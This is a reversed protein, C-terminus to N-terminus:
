EPLPDPTEAAQLEALEDMVHLYEEYDASTLMLRIDNMARTNNWLYAYQCACFGCIFLLLYSCM